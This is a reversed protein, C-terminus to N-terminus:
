GSSLLSSSLLSSLPSFITHSAVAASPMLGSWRFSSFFLPFFSLLSLFFPLLFSLFFSLLSLFFFLNYPFICRGFAGSGPRAPALRGPRVEHTRTAVKLAARPMKRTKPMERARTHFYSSSLLIPAPVFNLLKAVSRRSTAVRTITHLVMVRATYCLNTIQPM